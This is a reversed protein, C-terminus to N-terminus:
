WREVLFSRLADKESAPLVATAGSLRVGDREPLPRALMIQGVEGHKAAAGDHATLTRDEVLLDQIRITGQAADAEVLMITKSAGDILLIREEDSKGTVVLADFGCFKLYPGFWGGVNSDIPACTTPSISTVLAKGSGSYSTTGGLPGSSICIVNEPSDWRTEPTVEDWMLRLDFGKGGIFIDIMEQAEGEGLSKGM